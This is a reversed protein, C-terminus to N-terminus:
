ALVLLQERDKAEYAGRVLLALPRYYDPRLDLAYNLQGSAMSTKGKKLYVLALARHAEALKPDIFVSKILEKEAKELDPPHGLGQLDALGRGFLTFAYYDKSLPRRVKAEAAAPVPRGAKALLEFAADDLLEFTESFDGRERKQGVLKAAGGEVSWLRLTFELRWNPRAYSGTWVFRAGAKGAIKAVQEANVANELAGEPVILDGYLPRLAPDAELKEALAVPLGVRLWELTAVGSNNEFPMVIFGDPPNKPIDPTHLGPAGPAAGATGGLRALLASVLCFKVLTSRGDM